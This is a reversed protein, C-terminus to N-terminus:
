NAPKGFLDVGALRRLGVFRDQGLGRLQYGSLSPRQQQEVFSSLLQRHSRGASNGIRDASHITNTRALSDGALNQAVTTRQNALDILKSRRRRRCAPVLCLRKETIRDSDTAAFEADQIQGVLGAASSVIRLIQAHNFQNSRLDRQGQFASGPLLAGILKLQHRYGIRQRPQMIATILFRTQSLLQAPCLTVIIRETEHHDINIIEFEIVIAVAVLGAIAGQLDHGM